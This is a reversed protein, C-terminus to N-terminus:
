SLTMMKWEMLKRQHNHDLIFIFLYFISVLIFTSKGIFPKLLEIANSIFPSFTPNDHQACVGFGYLCDDKLDDKSIHQFLIPLLFKTFSEFSQSLPPPLMLSTIPLADLADILVSLSM